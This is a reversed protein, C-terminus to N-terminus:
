LTSIAKRMPENASIGLLEGFALSFDNLSLTEEHDSM